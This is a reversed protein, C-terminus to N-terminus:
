EDCCDWYEEIMDCVKDKARKTLDFICSSSVEGNLDRIHEYFYELIDGFIWGDCFFSTRISVCDLCTKQQFLEGESKGVYNEYFEKTEITKGCEGCKHEKRAKQVKVRIKVSDFDTDVLVCSCDM